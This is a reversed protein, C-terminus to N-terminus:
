SYLEFARKRFSSVMQKTAQSFVPGLSLDMLRSKFRFDISFDIRTQTPGLEQFSWVSELHKFPGKELSIRVEKGPILRDVTHFTERFGKFSFTMEAIFQEPTENRKTAHSCWPIFEPYADMDVVLNYMQQPTFPVTESASAKM